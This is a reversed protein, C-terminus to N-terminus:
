VAIGGLEGGFRDLLQSMSTGSSSTVSVSGGSLDVISYMLAQHASNMPNTDEAGTLLYIVYFKDCSQNFPVIAIEHEVINYIINYPQDGPPASYYDSLSGSFTNNSNYVAGDYVYFLLNGNRDYVSNGAIYPNTNGNVTSSGLPNFSIENPHLLFHSKQTQAYCITTFLVFSLL